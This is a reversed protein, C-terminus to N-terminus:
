DKGQGPHRAMNLTGEQIKLNLKTLRGACLAAVSQERGRGQESKM